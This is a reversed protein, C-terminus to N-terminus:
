ALKPLARQRDPDVLCVVLDSVPKRVEAAPQLQSEV